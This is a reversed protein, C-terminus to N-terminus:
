SKKLFKEPPNYLSGSWEVLEEISKATLLDRTAQARDIKLDSPYAVLGEKHM